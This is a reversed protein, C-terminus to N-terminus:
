KKLEYYEERLFKKKLKINEKHFIRIYDVIEQYTMKHISRFRNHEHYDPANQIYERILNLREKNNTKGNLIRSVSSVSINVGEAIEVYTLKKRKSENILKQQKM